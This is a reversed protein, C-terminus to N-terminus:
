VMFFPVSLYENTIEIEFLNGKDWNSLHLHTNENVINAFRSHFKTEHTNLGVRYVTGKYKDFVKTMPPLVATKQQSYRQQLYSIKRCNM